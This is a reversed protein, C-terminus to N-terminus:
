TAISSAGSTRLKSAEVVQAAIPLAEDLPIPGHALRDALTPGDVLELV